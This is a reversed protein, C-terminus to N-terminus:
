RSLSEMLRQARSKRAPTELNEDVEGLDEDKKNEVKKDKEPQAPEQKPKQVGGKMESLLEEIEQDDMGKKMMKDVVESKVDMKDALDKVKKDYEMKKKEEMLAEAIGLAVRVEEVTGISDWEEKMELAKTMAEEIEEITGFKEDVTSMFSEAFELSAKVNEFSEGLSNFNELEESLQTKEEELSALSERLENITAEAEHIQTKLHTNEESIPKIAEEIKSKVESDKQTLKERLSGNEESLREIVKTDMSSEGQMINNEYEEAIKPNAELFGPSLVFDWGKLKYTDKDVVPIGNKSGKFKGDARSSVFVESGARLVTNLIKGSPTNLILAEGIGKGQDDIYAKTVIHSIKGEQLTKDSLETDHGITGFMTRSKLKQQVDENKLCQEWLEKPYFRKNRSVGDPCFFPGRVKALIHEGDVESESEIFEFKIGTEIYDNKFKESEM